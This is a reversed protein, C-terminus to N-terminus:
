FYIVDATPDKKPNLRDGVLYNVEHKDIHQPLDPVEKIAAKVAPNPVSLNREEAIIMDLSFKKMIEHINKRLEKDFTKALEEAPINKEKAEKVLKSFDGLVNEFEKHVQKFQHKFVEASAETMDTKEALEKMNVSTDSLDKLNKVEIEKATASDTLDQKKQTTKVTKATAKTNTNSANSTKATKATNTNNTTGAASTVNKNDTTNATKAM